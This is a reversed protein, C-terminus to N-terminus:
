FPVEDDKPKEIVQLGLEKGEDSEVIYKRQMWEYVKGHATPDGISDSIEYYVLDNVREGLPMASPLPSIGKINNYVAEGKEERSVNILAPKDMLSKIDFAKKDAETMTTAQWVNLMKCLNASKTLSQTYEQSLVFPRDDKMRMDSLEFVLMLKRHKAGPKADKHTNDHTGLDVIHICRGPYQDATMREKEEGSNPSYLDM